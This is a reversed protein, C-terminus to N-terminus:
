EKLEKEIKELEEDQWNPDNKDLWAEDITPIEIDCLNVEAPSGDCPSLDSYDPKEEPTYELFLKIPIEIYRISEHISM